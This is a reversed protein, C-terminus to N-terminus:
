GDAPTESRHDWLPTLLALAAVAIALGAAPFLASVRPGWQEATFGVIASGIPAGGMFGMSYVALVRGLYRPEAAAQVITRSMSIAVGAALGWLTVVLAMLIFPKELGFTALGAAGALHSIIMARGPRKLPKSRSLIVASVFSAAWFCALLAGLRSAQTQADGGYEERVVLPFLVQFSGIVFVGVAGASMLMPAMVPNRFSYRLGDGLDRMAGALTREHGVPKPARLALAVTAALVLVGGQLALFPAPAHGAFRAVLIGAIQAGIQVATTTAAAVAISTHQGMAAERAVVGNLAADRVPMLFAACCGVFVAYSILIEYSLAGFAMSAALTLSALALLLHLRALALGARSREALLGGFLLLCFMPASLASQALGVGTATAELFFAALSPFLVFQMGFSFFYLGVLLYYLHLERVAPRTPRPRELTM